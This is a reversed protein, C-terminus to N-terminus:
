NKKFVKYIRKIMKKDGEDCHINKLLHDIENFNRPHAVFRHDIWNYMFKFDKEKLNTDKSIRNLIPLDEFSSEEYDLKKIEKRIMEAGVKVPKAKMYIKPWQIIMENLMQSILLISEREIKDKEHEDLRRKMELNQKQQEYLQYKIEINEQKMELITDELFKIKRNSEILSNELFAIELKLEQNELELHYLKALSEETKKLQQRLSESTKIENELRIETENTILRQTITLNCIENNGTCQQCKRLEGKLRQNKSFLHSEYFQACQNCRLSM